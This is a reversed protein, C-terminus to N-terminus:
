QRVTNVLGSQRRNPVNMIIVTFIGATLLCKNTLNTQTLKTLKCPPCENTVPGYITEYHNDTLFKKFPWDPKKTEFWLYFITKYVVIIFSDNSAKTM